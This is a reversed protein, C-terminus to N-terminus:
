KKPEFPDIGAARLVAAKRAGPNLIKTTGSQEPVAPIAKRPKPTHETFTAEVAFAVVGHSAWRGVAKEALDLRGCWEDGGVYFHKGDQTLKRGSQRKDFDAVYEDVLGSLGKDLWEKAERIDKESWAHDWPKSHKRGPEAPLRAMVGPQQAAVFTHYHLNTEWYKRASQITAGREKEVSFKRVICHTYTRSVSNRTFTYGDITATHKFM